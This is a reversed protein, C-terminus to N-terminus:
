LKVAQVLSHATEVSLFRSLSDKEAQENGWLNYREQAQKAFNMADSGWYQFDQLAPQTVLYDIISDGKKLGVNHAGTLGM